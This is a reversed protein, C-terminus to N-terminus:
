VRYFAATSHSLSLYKIGDSCNSYLGKEFFLAEGSDRM